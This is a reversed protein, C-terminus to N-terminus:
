EGLTVVEDRGNRFPLDMVVNEHARLSDVNAFLFLRSGHGGSIARNAEIMNAIRDSSTTITIVRFAPIGFRSQPIRKEWSTFYALLKRHFSTQALNRRKVPMTGCDAELFFFDIHGSDNHELAFVEDPVVACPVPARRHEITVRWAFQKWDGFVRNRLEEPSIFMVDSHRTSQEMAVLYDSIMLGHAFSERKDHRNRLWDLRAPSLSSHKKLLSAGKRSLGYVRAESGGHRRHSQRVPLRELYGARHLHGIRRRIAEPSGSILSALHSSRLFRHRAVREVIAIDRPTIRFTQAEM